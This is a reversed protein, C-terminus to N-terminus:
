FRSESYTCFVRTKVVSRPVIEQVPAKCCAYCARVDRRWFIAPSGLPKGGTFAPKSWPPANETVGGELSCSNQGCTRHLAAPERCSAASMGSGRWSAGPADCASGRVRACRARGAGPARRAASIRGRRPARESVSLSAGRWAQAPRPLHASFRASHIKRRNPLPRQASFRGFHIKPSELEPEAAAGSPASGSRRAGWSFSLGRGVQPKESPAFPGVGRACAGSARLGTGLFVSQGIKLVIATTKGGSFVSQDIKLVNRSVHGPRGARARTRRAGRFRCTGPRGPLRRSPRADRRRCRAPRGVSVGGRSPDAGARPPVTRMKLVKTSQHCNLPPETCMKQVTARRRCRDAATSVRSPSGSRPGADAGFFYIARKRLGSCVNPRIAGDADCALSRLFSACPSWGGHRLRVFSSFLHM